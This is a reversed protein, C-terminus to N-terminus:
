DLQAVKAALMPDERLFPRDPGSARGGTAPEQDRLFFGHTALHLVRPRQVRKVAEEVAQAGSLAEVHWRREGFLTRLSDIRYTTQSITDRASSLSERMSDRRSVLEDRLAVADRATQQSSTLAAEADRM